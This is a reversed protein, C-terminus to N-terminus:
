AGHEALDKGQVIKIAELVELGAVVANTTAIAPIINGAAPPLVRWSHNPVSHSVPVHLHSHM